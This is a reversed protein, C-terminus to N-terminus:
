FNERAHNKHVQHCCLVALTALDAPNARRCTFVGQSDPFGIIIAFKDMAPLLKAVLSQTFVSPLCFNM